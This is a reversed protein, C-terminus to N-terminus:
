SKAACFRNFGECRRPVNHHDPAWLGDGSLKGLAEPTAELDEIWYVAGAPVLRDASKPRRTALDWGSITSFGPVAACVLRGKVGGLQWSHDGNLGPLSWGDPFLGPSRLVIRCKGADILEKPDVAPPSYEPLDTIVAGRGDGGFRLLGDVPVAEARVGCVFGVSGELAVVQTTFLKGEAVSRRDADLGVGVRPEIKWLSEVRVLGEVTVPERRLYAEWGAENFWWGSQPKVRQNGQALTALKELGTGSGIRGNLARPELCAVVPEDATGHIVVDAPPAYLMSVGDLTRRALSFETLSFREADQLGAADLAPDDVLMRSRLAGAAVSPWPPMLSEGFSGADGFLKNGRLTLVDLPQVFRYAITNM